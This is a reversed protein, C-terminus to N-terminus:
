SCITQHSFIGEREKKKKENIKKKRQKKTEKERRREKARETKGEKEKAREAKGERELFIEKPESCWNYTKNFSKSCSKRM